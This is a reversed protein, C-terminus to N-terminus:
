FHMFINCINLKEQACLPKRTQTTIADNGWPQPKQPPLFRLNEVPPQAFPIGLFESVPKGDIESKKGVIVGDNIETFVTETASLGAFFYSFLKM